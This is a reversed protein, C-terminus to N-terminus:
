GIRIRQLISEMELVLTIITERYCRKEPIREDDRSLPVDAV